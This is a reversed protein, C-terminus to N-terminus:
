VTPDVVAPAESPVPAPAESPVPAPIEEPVGAAVALSVATGGVVEVDLLGSITQVGEGVDADATVTVQTTGLDGTTTAVCTMGDASPALTVIGPGVVAWVPAGDVQAPNGKADVPSVNITVRQTDKLVISMAVEGLSPSTTEVPGIRWRFCVARHKHLLDYVQRVLTEIIGELRGVRKELKPQEHALTEVINDLHCIQKELEPHEHGFFPLKAM